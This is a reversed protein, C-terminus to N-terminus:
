PYVAFGVQSGGQDTELLKPVPMRGLLLESADALPAALLDRHGLVKFILLPTISLGLGEIGTTRMRGCLIQYATYQSPVVSIQHSSWYLEM